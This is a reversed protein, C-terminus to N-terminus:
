VAGVTEAALVPEPYTDPREPDFLDDTWFLTMLDDAGTNTVSHAWMTPMDVAVPADGEVDIRVVEDGFLRRLRIQGRGSVVVFREVKHLHFHEGRTVGPRSSSVFTQGTGGHARVCEFLAGRDDAHRTLRLPMTSAGAYSRYTNFLDRAFPDSLDPLEGVAYVAAQERLLALVTSVRARRGRPEVLGPSPSETADLLLQAAQQAHLLQLEADDTVQPEEGAAVLHAFTAVFSNYHPRGHEGFLNPLRVETCGAGRDAAWGALIEGAERKGRGYPTDREAHTSGAYAVAPAVAARDCAAVLQRAAHQNGDAVEAEGGRNVGALHLVVDAGALARAAADVDALGARGLPVVVDDTRARMRCRLHWGLFGEAGTVVVRRSM